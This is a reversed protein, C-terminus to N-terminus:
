LDDYINKTLKNPKLVVCYFRIVEAAFCVPMFCLTIPIMYGPLHLAIGICYFETNIMFFLFFLWLCLSSPLFYSFISGFFLQAVIFIGLSIVENIGLLFMWGRDGVIHPGVSSVFISFICVNILFACETVNTDEKINTKSSENSSFLPPVVQTGRFSINKSHDSM